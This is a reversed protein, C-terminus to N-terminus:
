SEEVELPEERFTDTAVPKSAVGYCCNRDRTVSNHGILGTIEAYIQYYSKAVQETSFYRAAVFWCDRQALSYHERFDFIAQPLRGLDGDDFTVGLSYETMLTKLGGVNQNVIIPLGTSLYEAVKTGIMTEAVVSMPTNRSITKLPVLGYDGTALYGPVENPKASVVLYDRQTVGETEFAAALHQKSHGTILLLMTDSFSQSITKYIRALLAPDHWASLGGNYVFVMKGQMGLDARKANRSLRAQDFKHVDACTFIVSCDAGDALSKVRDAFPKSLAIVKDSGTFLKKEVYKWFKFRLSTESWRGAVVGEEPWFGRPDFIVKIDRFVFRALVALLTAMYSRCHVVDPRTRYIKYLLLPTSLALALALIPFPLSSAWRKRLIIPLFFISTTVGSAGLDHKLAALEKRETAFRLLVETRGIEVAPLLACYSLKLTNGCTTGLQYLLQRVQTEHIGNHVVPEFFTLYLVSMSLSTGTVNPKV